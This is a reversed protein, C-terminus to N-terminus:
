LKTDWIPIMFRERFAAGTEEVKECRACENRYFVIVMEEEYKWKYKVFVEAYKSLGDAAMVYDDTRINTQLITFPPLWM